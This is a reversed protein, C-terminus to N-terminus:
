LLVVLLICVLLLTWLFGFKLIWPKLFCLKQKSLLQLKSPTQLIFIKLMKNVCAVFFKSILTLMLTLLSLSSFVVVFHSNIWFQVDDFHYILYEVCVVFILNLYMLLRNLTIPSANATCKMTFVTWFSNFCWHICIEIFRLFVGLIERKPSGGRYWMIDCWIVDFISSYLTNENFMCTTLVFFIFM